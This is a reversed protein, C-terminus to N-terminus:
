PRLRGPRRGSGPQVRFLNIFLGIVVSTGRHCPMLALQGGSMDAEGKVVDCSESCQVESKVNVSLRSELEAAGEGAAEAVVVKHNIHVLFADDGDVTVGIVGQIRLNHEFQISNRCMMAVTEQLLKKLREHEDRM